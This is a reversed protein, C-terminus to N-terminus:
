KTEPNNNSAPKNALWRVKGAAKVASVKKLDHLNYLDCYVVKVPENILMALEDASAKEVLVLADHVRQMREAVRKTPTYQKKRKKHKKTLIHNHYAHKRKVKGSGTLKFRKKAGSLTKMKPM